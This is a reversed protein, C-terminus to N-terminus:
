GMEGSGMRGNNWNELIGITFRLMSRIMKM